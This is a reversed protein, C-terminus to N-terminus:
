DETRVYLKITVPKMHINTNTTSLTVNFSQGSGDENELAVVKGVHGGINVFKRGGDHPSFLSEVLQWKTPKM